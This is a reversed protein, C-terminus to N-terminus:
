NILLTGSSSSASSKEVHHLPDKQRGCGHVNDKEKTPRAEATGGGTSSVRWAGDDGRPLQAQRYNEKTGHHHLLLAIHNTGL